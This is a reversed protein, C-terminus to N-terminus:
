KQNSNCWFVCLCHHPIKALKARNCKFVKPLSQQLLNAGSTLLPTLDMSLNKALNIWGICINRKGKIITWMNKDTAVYQAALCQGRRKRSNFIEVLDNM